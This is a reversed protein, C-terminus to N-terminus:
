ALWDKLEDNLDDVALHLDAEVMMREEPEDHRAVVRWFRILLSLPSYEEVAAACGMGISLDIELQDVTETAWPSPTGDNVHASAANTLMTCRASAARVTEPTTMNSM